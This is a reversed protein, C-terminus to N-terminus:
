APQRMELALLVSDQVRIMAAIGKGLLLWFRASLFGLAAVLPGILGVPFSGAGVAFYTGAGALVAAALAASVLGLAQAAQAAAEGDPRGPIAPRAGRALALVTREREILPGLCAALRLVFLGFLGLAPAALGLLFAGWWLTLEGPLTPIRIGVELALLLAAGLSALAALFLPGSVLWIRVPTPTDIRPARKAREAGALADSARSALNRWDRLSTSLVGCFGAIAPFCVAVGLGLLLPASVAASGSAVLACGHLVAVGAVAYGARSLKRMAEPLSFTASGPPPLKPAELATLAVRNLLLTQQRWSTALEFSVSRLWEAFCGLFIGVPALIPAIEVAVRPTGGTRGDAFLVVLLATLGYFLCLAGSGWLLWRAGQTALSLAHSAPFGTTQDARSAEM